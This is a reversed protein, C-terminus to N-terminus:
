SPSYSLPLQRFVSAFAIRSLVDQSLGRDVSLRGSKRSVKEPSFSFSSWAGFFHPDGCVMMTAPAPRRAASRTLYPIGSM